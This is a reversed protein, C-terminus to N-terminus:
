LNTETGNIMKYVRGDEVNISTGNVGMSVTQSSPNIEVFLWDNGSTTHSIQTMPLARDSGNLWVELNKVAISVSDEDASLKREGKFFIEFKFQNSLRAVCIEAVPNDQSYTPDYLRIGVATYADYVGSLAPVTWEGVTAYIGSEPNNTLATSVLALLKGMWALGGIFDGHKDTIELPNSPSAKWDAWEGQMVIEPKELDYWAKGSLARMIGALIQNASITSTYLGEATLTSVQTMLSPDFAGAIEGYEMMACAFNWKNASNNYVQWVARVASSPVDFTQTFRKWRNNVSLDVTDQGVMAGDAGVWRIELQGTASGTPCITQMQATVTNYISVDFPEAWIHQWATLRYSNYRGYKLTTDVPM